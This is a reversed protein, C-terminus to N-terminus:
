VLYGLLCSIKLIKNVAIKTSVQEPTFTLESLASAIVKISSLDSISLKVIKDLFYERLNAKLNNDIIFQTENLFSAGLSSRQSNFVSSLAIINKTVLNLNGSNLEKLFQNSQDNNTISNILSTVLNDNPLVIVSQAINYIVVGDSDDIINVFINLKYNDSSQGQPLIIFLDGNYNYNLAISNM